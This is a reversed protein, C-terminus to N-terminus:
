APCQSAIRRADSYGSLDAVGRERNGTQVRPSRPAADELRQADALCVVWYAGDDGLMVASAKTRGAIGFAAAQDRIVEPTHRLNLAAARRAADTLENLPADHMALALGMLGYLRPWPRPKGRASGRPLGRAEEGQAADEDAEPGEIRRETLAWFVFAPSEM